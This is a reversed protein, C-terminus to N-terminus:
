LADDPYWNKGKEQGQRQKKSHCKHRIIEFVDSNILIIIFLPFGFRFTLHMVAICQFPKPVIQVVGGEPPLNNFPDDNANDGKDKNAKNGPPIVVRRCQATIRTMM